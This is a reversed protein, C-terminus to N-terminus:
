TDGAAKEVRFTNQVFLCYAVAQALALGEENAKAKAQPINLWLWVFGPWLRPKYALMLFVRHSIYGFWDSNVALEVAVGDGFAPLFTLAKYVWYLGLIMALTWWGPSIEGPKYVKESGAFV